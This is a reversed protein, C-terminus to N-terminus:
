VSLKRQQRKRRAFMLGVAGLGWMALSAPEPVATSSAYTLNDFMVWDAYSATLVVHDIDSTSRTVGFYEGNDNAFPTNLFTNTELLVNASNFTDMTWSYNPAFLFAFESVPGGLFTFQFASTSGYDNQLNNIGRSNYVGGTGQPVVRVDGGIGTFDVGSITVSSYLGVATSDFDVVTGGSIVTTLDGSAVNGNIFGGHVQGAMVALMLGALCLFRIKMQEGKASDSISIDVPTSIATGRLMTDLPIRCLKGLIEKKDNQDM